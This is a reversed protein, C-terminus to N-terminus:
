PELRKFEVRVGPAVQSPDILLGFWGDPEAAWARVLNPAASGGEVAAQHLLELRGGGYWVMRYVPSAPSKDDSLSSVTLELASVGSEPKIWLEGGPALSLFGSQSQGDRLHVMQLRDGQAGTWLDVEAASMIQNHGSFIRLAPPEDQRSSSHQIRPMFWGAVFPNGQLDDPMHTTFRVSEGRTDVEYSVEIKMEGAPLEVVESWMPVGDPTHAAEIEFRVTVSSSLDETRREVRVRGSLRNIPRTFRWSVDGRFSGIMQEGDSLGYLSTGAGLFIDPPSLNGRLQNILQVSDTERFRYEGEEDIRIRYLDLRQLETRTSRLNLAEGISPPLYNYWDKSISFWAFPSPAALAATLAGQERLGYSLPSSWLPLKPPTVVPWIRELWETGPGYFHPYNKDSDRPTVAAQLESLSIAQDPPILTGTLYGFHESSQALDVYDKRPAESFGFQSRQGQWASWWSCFGVILAPAWLVWLKAGHTSPEGFGLHLAVALAVSVALTVYVIEHNTALLAGVGVVMVVAAGAVMARDLWGRGRILIGTVGAAWVVTILGVQPLWVPGYFDHFPKLYFEPTLLAFMLGGRNQISLDIVSHRWTAWDTGSWWLELALPILLGAALWTVITAGAARWSASGMWAARLAWALAIALALLHFNLKNTGGAMLVTGVALGIAWGRKSLTPQIATGWVVAALGVVGVANYWIITHQSVASIVVVGAILSAQWPELRKWLVAALGFFSVVILVGNGLTMAQYTGGWWSEAFHNLWLTLSQIPTVFDRYPTQGAEIRASAAIVLGYDM